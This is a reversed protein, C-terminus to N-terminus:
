GPRFRPAAKKLREQRAAALTHSAEVRAKETALARLGEAFEKLIRVVNSHGRAEAVGQATYGNKNREDPSAKNDLLFRVMEANGADAAFILPTNGYINKADIAVGNDLLLRAFATYDKRNATFMLATFGTSDTENVHAGRALLDRVKEIPSFRIANILDGQKIPEPM